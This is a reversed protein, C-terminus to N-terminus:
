QISIRRRTFNCGVIGICLAFWWIHDDIPVNCARTFPASVSAYYLGTKTVQGDTVTCSGSSTGYVQIYTHPGCTGTWNVFNYGNGPTFTTAGSATPRNFVKDYQDYKAILCGQSYCIQFSISVLIATLVISCKM